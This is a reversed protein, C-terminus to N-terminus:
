SSLLKDYFARAPCLFKVHALSASKVAPIGIIDKAASPPTSGAPLPLHDKGEARSLDCRSKQTWGEAVRCFLFM